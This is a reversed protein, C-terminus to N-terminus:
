TRLFVFLAVLAWVTSFLSGIIQRHQEILACHSDISFNKGFVCFDATPCVSAHAPVKFDRLDSFLGLLPSLVSAADPIAELTPEVFSGNGNELLGEDVGSTNTSRINSDVAVTVPSFGSASVQSVVQPVVEPVVSSFFDGVTPVVSSNQELFSTVDQPTVPNSASWSVLASSDKAVKWVANVIASLMEPSLKKGTVEEPVDAVALDVSKPKSIYTSIPRVVGGRPPSYKFMMHIQYDGNPLKVIRDFVNIWCPIDDKYFPIPSFDEGLMRKSFPYPGRYCCPIVAPDGKFSFTKYRAYELTNEKSAKYLFIEKNVGYHDLLSEFSKGTDLDSIAQLGMGDGSLTVTKDSNFKWDVFANQGLSIAGSLCTSVAINTLLVPWSVLSACRGITALRGLGVMKTSTSLGTSLGSLASSILSTNRIGRANLKQLVVGSIVTNIKDNYHRINAAHAVHVHCLFVCFVFILILWAFWYYNSRRMCCGM